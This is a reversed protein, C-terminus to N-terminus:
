GRFRAGLAPPTQPPGAFCQAISMWKTATAGIVALKTDRINRTQCVVQCFETATGEIFNGESPQNFDWKEKSPSILRLFPKCKPVTKKRNTFTWGFTNNGLIVINRIYDRDRRGVGLADYIAQGHSWTEMLRATISSLVSMDPGAWNVRKKPDANRFTESMENYFKHWLQLLLTGRIGELQKNTFSLMTEGRVQSARLDALLDLLGKENNLSLNAAYNFFHLHQVIDNFTWGKFQTTQELAKEDLTELLQYLSDSEMKFDMAQQLM